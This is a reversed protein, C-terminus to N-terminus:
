KSFCSSLGRLQFVSPSFIPIGELVFARVLQDAHHVFLLTERLITDDCVNEQLHPMLAKWLSTQLAM